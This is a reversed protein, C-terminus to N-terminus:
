LALLSTLDMCDWGKDWTQIEQATNRVLPPQGKAQVGATVPLVWMWEVKYLKSQKM